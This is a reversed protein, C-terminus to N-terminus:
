RNIVDVTSDINNAFNIEYTAENWSIVAVIYIFFKVLISNSSQM